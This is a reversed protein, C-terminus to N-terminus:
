NKKKDYKCWYELVKGIDEDEDVKGIIKNMSCLWRSLTGSHIDYKKKFIPDKLEM